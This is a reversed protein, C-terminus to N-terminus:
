HCNPAWVTSDPVFQYFVHYAGNLWTIGHPDNIWGRRPTFHFAPRSQSTTTTTVM